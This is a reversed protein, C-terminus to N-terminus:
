YEKTNSVNNFDSWDINTKYFTSERNLSFNTDTMDKYVNIRDSLSTINNMEFNNGEFGLVGNDSLSNITYDSCSDSNSNESNSVIDSISNTSNNNQNSSQCVSGLNSSTSNSSVSLESGGGISSGGDNSSNDNNTNTNTSNDVTKGYKSMAIVNTGLAALSHLETANSITGVNANLLASVLQPSSIIFLLAGIVILIVAMPYTTGQVVTGFVNFLIGICLYQVATVLFTGVVGKCWVEFSQSRNSILSTCVFPAIAKYLALEIVRKAVQIGIFFLLVVVVLGVLFISFTHFSYKYEGSDLFGANMVANYDVTWWNNVFYVKDTESMKSNDAFATLIMSSMSAEFTSSSTTTSSSATIVYETMKSSIDYGWNFIQPILFMMVISFIIGRFVRTPSSNDDQNVFYRMIIELIVKLVLWTCAIIIAASYINNVYTNDFFKFKWIDNIILFMGDLLILAGKALFWFVWRIADLIWSASEHQVELIQLLM